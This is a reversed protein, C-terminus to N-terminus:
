LNSRICGGNGEVNKEIWREVYDELFYIFLVHFMEDIAYNAWGSFYFYHSSYTGSGNDNYVASQECLTNHKMYNESYVYLIGRCLM